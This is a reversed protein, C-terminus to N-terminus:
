NRRIITLIFPTASALQADNAELRVVADFLLDDPAISAAKTADAIALQLEEVTHVRRSFKPAPPVNGPM